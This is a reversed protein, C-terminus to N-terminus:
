CEGIPISRVNRKGGTPLFNDCRHPRKQSADGLPKGRLHVAELGLDGSIGAIRQVILALLKARGQNREGALRDAREVFLQHRDGHDDLHDVEGRQDVIVHHVRRGDASSLRRQGGAPAIGNRDQHAVAQKGVRELQGRIKEGGLHRPGDGFRGSADAGSFNELAM